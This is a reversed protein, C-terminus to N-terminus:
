VTTDAGARPQTSGTVRAEAATATPRSTPKTMVSFRTRCGKIRSPMRRAPVTTRALRLMIASKPEYRLKWNM